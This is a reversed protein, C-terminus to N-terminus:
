FILRLTGKAASRLNQASLEYQIGVKRGKLDDGACIRLHREFVDVPEGILIDGLEVSVHVSKDRLSVSPYGAQEGPTRELFRGDRQIKPLEAAVRFEPHRPMVLKLKADRVPENGHNMLVLQVKAAREDFLFQNDNDRFRREIERMEDWIEDTSREEYPTDTGFLRAHTLRAVFTNTAGHEVRKKSEILENLKASAIASPLKSFDNTAVKLDKYIIDGPFGIELQAASVSEQFSKEFLSQLQARGLKVAANKVRAYADGRRLTESYDIRIMYPRDQCDGIEFVGVREGDINVSEHRIRIAPEIYDNALLQYSPKGSFDERSVGHVRKKGKADFEIGTIIYRSGETSGNAIAVVDRLFSEVGDKGYANKRCQVATSPTASRVIRALRNM